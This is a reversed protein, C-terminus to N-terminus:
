DDYEDDGFYEKVWGAKWRELKEEYTEEKM